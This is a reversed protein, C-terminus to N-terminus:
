RGITNHGQKTMAHMYSRRSVRVKSILVSLFFSVAVSHCVSFCCNYGEKTMEHVYRRSKRVKSILVPLFFSVVVVGDRTTIASSKEKAVTKARLFLLFFCLLTLRYIVLFGFSIWPFPVPVAGVLSYGVILWHSLFIPLHRFHRSYINFFVLVTVVQLSIHDVRLSISIITCVSIGRDSSSLPKPLSM